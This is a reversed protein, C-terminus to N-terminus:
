VRSLVGLFLGKSGHGKDILSYTRVTRCSDEVIVISSLHHCVTEAVLSDAVLSDKLDESLKILLVCGECRRIPSSYEGQNNWVSRAGTVPAHILTQGNLAILM